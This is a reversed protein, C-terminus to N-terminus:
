NRNVIILSSSVPKQRFIVFIENGKLGFSVYKRSRPLRARGKLSPPPPRLYIDWKAKHTFHPTLIALSGKSFPFPWYLQGGQVFCNIDAAELLEFM